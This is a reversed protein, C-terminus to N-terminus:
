GRDGMGGGPRIAGEGYRERVEFVVDEVKSWGDEEFGLQRPADAQELSSAGLGILRVPRTPALEDLLARAVASIQRASNTPASLTRSRTLTEFDEYRVKLTVTRGVLGARRM